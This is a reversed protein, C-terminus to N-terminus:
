FLEIVTANDQVKQELTAINKHRYHVIANYLKETSFGSVKPLHLLLILM